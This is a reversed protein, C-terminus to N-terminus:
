ALAGHVSTALESVRDAGSTRMLQRTLTQDEGPSRGPFQANLRSFDAQLLREAHGIAKVADTLIAIAEDHAAVTASSPELTAGEATLAAYSDGTHALPTPPLTTM